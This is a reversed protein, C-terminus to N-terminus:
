QPLEVLFTTGLQKSSEVRVKGGHAEAMGRVLTLGLGWGRKKGEHASPARGFHEFISAVQEKPIETGLNHVSLEFGGSGVRKAAVKVLAGATGYKIANGILNELVRRIGDASCQCLLEEESRVEFRNGHTMVMDDVVERVILDLDAKEKSIRLGEGARIRSADLLDHVMSEMRNLAGIINGASRVSADPKEPRRLIMQAALKASTLPTKLDHTLTDIFKQQIDAHVETFKVAADNVAQEISDLIIDRQLSDLPAAEELVQFIVERLIHYEFIVETLVYRTNGARDEGHLSGIRGSEKDHIAVSKIDMKRNTALAESLHGLYIPLSDRLVLADASVASPVEKLSREAWLGMIKEISDKLHNSNKGTM